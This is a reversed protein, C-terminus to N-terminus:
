RRAGVLEPLPPLEALAQARRARCTRQWEEDLSEHPGTGQPTDGALGPKDEPSLPPPQPKDLTIPEGPTPANPTLATGKTKAAIGAKSMADMDSWLVINQRDVLVADDGGPVPPEGIEDAYRNRTYTGNRLRMDRISEVVTSDRYDIEPFELHWGEIGFGQQLLHFNIKELILSQVPIITNIRLTKDQSEGTGGGLNGSEIIGLKGPPVGFTAIIEDRLQKSTALYDTVKRPDLVNVKGDGTTITPNGVAKPGLNFVMYKERWRQVEPDSANGLDVHVRPPDGRRFCEKITAETFLWATVPLLAKQTPGVGYSGGRPADLSIHIVQDATFEATRSGGLGDVVQIYGTVEGHDDAVVTMTTSDLTYLAVPEGLLTVIEIYADGFLNLDIVASRLLQVLDQRPNVYRMLRRLRTVEPTDPPVKGDAAMADAVVQLGGATVTRAILDIPAAVWPCTLYAQYLQTMIQQREQSYAAATRSTTPMLASGYEYGIRQPGNASAQTAPASEAIPTRRFAERIRTALGV